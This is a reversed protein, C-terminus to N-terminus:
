KLVKTVAQTGDDYRTVVINMGDMPTASSQGAVNYYRTSVARRSPVSVESIASVVEVDGEKVVLYYDQGGTVAYDPTQKGNNYNNFILNYNGSEVDFPFVKYTVGDKEVRGAPVIGPWAGYLEGASNYAYLALSPWETLDEAYIYHAAEPIPPTQLTIKFNDIALAMASACNTGSSVTINWALFLETGGPLTVGELDESVNVTAGPVSAYGATAADPNFHTKFANGASTWALGDTSYYMQVDFGASNSGQRYKEVDYDIHIDQLTTACVNTFHVYVNTCRTGDAVGTSIGGVARDETDDAGFNWLGNKANSPLSVGGAYMTQNGAVGYAGVIRPGSTQRDICWATPLTATAEDGMSNFNEEAVLHMDDLEITPLKVVETVADAVVVQATGNFQGNDATVTYEGNTGDITFVGDALSGGGTTTWEFESESPIEMGFQDFIRNSYHIQGATQDVVNEYNNLADSAYSRMLAAESASLGGDTNITAPDEGFILGYEMCAAMYTAKPTPHRDDSFWTAAETLDTAAVNAYAEGVPCITVGHELAARRTNAAFTKSFSAFNDWDSSYPWNIPVIVIANPNPCNERIYGVWNEVNRLFTEPDTRPLSSQEQLIIHSWADSRVLMKAGPTGDAALGDGETWHANLSKGLLSHKTWSANKGMSQAISNFVADQDNYHILSNNLSLVKVQEPLRPVMVVDSPLLEMTTAVSPIREMTFSGDALSMTINYTGPETAMHGTSGKLMTGSTVSATLDEGTSSGWVGGMGLRQYILWHSLGDAGAPLTVQGSFVKEQSTVALAGSGDMYDWSNNDGIVYIQTLGEDSDDSKLLLTGGGSMDLTLEIRACVFSYNGCSINGPNSGGELVYPTNMTIANGNSGYNCVSSWAADAIKFQGSLTKNSLSYVGNGEDVFEWAADAAWSNVEGRLYIGSASWALQPLLLSALLVLIIRTSIKKM